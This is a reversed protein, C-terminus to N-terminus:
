KVNLTAPYDEKSATLFECRLPKSVALYQAEKVELDVWTKIVIVSKIYTIWLGTKM